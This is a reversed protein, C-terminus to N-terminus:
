KLLQEGLNKKSRKNPQHSYLIKKKRLAEHIQYKITRFDKITMLQDLDDFFNM